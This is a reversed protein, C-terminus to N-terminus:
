LIHFPRALPYATFNVPPSSPVLIAYAIRLRLRDTLINCKPDFCAFVIMEIDSM